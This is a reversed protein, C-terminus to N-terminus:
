VKRRINMDLFFDNMAWPIHITDCRIHNYLTEISLTVTKAIAVGM